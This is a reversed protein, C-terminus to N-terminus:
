YIFEVTVHSTIIKDGPEIPTASAREGLARSSFPQPLSSNETIKVPVPPSALGLMDGLSEAKGVANLVAQNLAQQYYLTDDSVEFSIFDIINAGNAVADDIVIGVKEMDDLRIELISRVEYGRDIQKGNDYDYRKHITYRYTKIDSVGNDKVSRIVAQSILANEEQVDTLNYGTTETGLRIVATDPITIIQGQGTLTMTKSCNPNDCAYRTM